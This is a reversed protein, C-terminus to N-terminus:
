SQALRAARAARVNRAKVDAAAYEASDHTAVTAGTSDLVDFKGAGRVVTRFLPTKVHQTCQAPVTPVTPVGAGNLADQHAIDPTGTNKDSPFVQADDPVSSVPTRTNGSNGSHATNGSNGSNGSFLVGVSYCNGSNELVGAKVMKCLRTRLSVAKLEPEDEQLAELIAKPTTAGSRVADIVRTREDSQRIVDAQGLLEWRPFTSKLALESEGVDRGTISLSADAKGRDRALVMLADAAGTLGTSGSMRDIFDAAEAKRTHHIVVIAINYKLTLDHLLGIPGYDDDYLRGRGSSGPRIKALTDIVVLKCDPHSALYGDLYVIGLQDTRDWSTAFNLGVPVATGALLQRVRDQIRREGNELDLYLVDIREVPVKGLAIGGRACDLAITLALASKGLKPPGGLITLGEALINQVIWRIPAFTKAMLDAGSIITPPTASPTAASPTAANAPTATSAQRTEIQLTVGAFDAATRVLDYWAAGTPKQGHYETYAIAEAWGGGKMDGHGYWVDDKVLLGNHGLIRTEDGDQTADGGLKQVFWAAIDFGRRIDAYVADNVIIFEKSTTLKTRTRLTAAGPADPTKTGFTAVARLANCLAEISVVAPAAVPLFPPDSPAIVSQCREHRLEIQSFADAYIPLPTGVKVGTGGGDNAKVKSVSAAIDPPLEGDYRVWIHVGKRKSPRAWEYGDDLGLGRLLAARVADPVPYKGTGDPTVIGDVDIHRWPPGDDTPAGNVIGVADVAPYTTGNSITPTTPFKFSRMVDVTQRTAQHVTWKCSPKKTEAEIPLVNAGLAHIHRAIAQVNM